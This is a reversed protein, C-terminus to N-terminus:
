GFITPESNKTIIKSNFPWSHKILNIMYQQKINRYHSADQSYHLSYTFHDYQLMSFPHLPETDSWYMPCYHNIGRSEPFRTQSFYRRYKDGLLYIQQIGGTRCLMMRYSTHLNYGFKPKEKWIKNAFILCSMACIIALGSYIAPQKTFLPISITM